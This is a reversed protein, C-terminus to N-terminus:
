EKERQEKLGRIQVAGKEVRSSTKLSVCAENLLVTMKPILLDQWAILM